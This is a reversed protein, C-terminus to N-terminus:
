NEVIFTDVSSQLQQAIAVTSTLSHSIEQSTDSTRESINAIQGILQTVTESTQAQSITTQSISEVLSDIQRSVGVIQQLSQKTDEILRTGEAARSNGVEIAEMVQVIEAQIKSIISEVEKTAAASQTALDGVEEAVVAFGRGEDGARAAEISANIALLNTQMAIQNILSIVRSIQQSATGLSQVKDSTEGITSQLQLISNVTREMSKGGDEAKVYSIRAVKAATQATQAVEQISRTMQEVSSLIQSIQEAQQRAEHSLQNVTGQNNTVSKNVQDAAQKVQTVIDRLNEIISNFFDAVIGIEGENIQSRVTLDGGSAGEVDDLFGLLQLQITQNKQKQEQVITEAESRAQQLEALSVSQEQLLQKVKQVLNNFSNALTITERSGSPTVIVNLDGSAVLEAKAALDQLPNAIKRALITIAVIASLISLIILLPLIIIRRAGLILIESRDISASIILTTNAIPSLTYEKNQYIFSITVVDQDLVSEFQNVRLNKLSSDEPLLDNLQDETINEPQPTLAIFEGIVAIADGGIIASNETSGQSTFTNLVQKQKIDISQVSQSGSISINKLNDSELAVLTSVPLVSKIVGLFEGSQPDKIQRILPISFSNSSQDLSPQDIYNVVQKGQQWWSEDSQIMDSTLQSYAINFGNKETIFIEALGSSEATQKLYNNLATDNILTKTTAYKKEAEAIALSNLQETEVKQIGKQIASLVAPNSAVSVSIDVASDIALSFSKQALLAEQEVKQRLQKVSNDRIIQYSVICAILLPILLTPVITFFLYYQLSIKNNLLFKSKESQVQNESM